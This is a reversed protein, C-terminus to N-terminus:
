VLRDSRSRWHVVEHENCSVRFIEFIRYKLVNVWKRILSFLRFALLRIHALPSPVSPM